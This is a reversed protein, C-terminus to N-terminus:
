LVTQLWSDVAARLLTYFKESGGLGTRGFTYNIELFVPDVEGAPFVLDFAALNIGSRRCFQRVKERGTEQLDQDSEADIAGGRAVNHLFGQATRWYSFVQDGIVVVRLDRELAAMYEQIVFGSGGQLEFQLLTQLKVGLEAENEILWVQRGEGGRAGKLVFPYAPLEPVRHDVDPHDGLLTEVKPFVLTHPHRVGYTWFALTDGIKGEWQFRLDYNPFVNQCMKTCLCYLEKAVTQPLIVAAADQITNFLDKDWVGRDWYFADGAIVPHLSLVNKPRAPQGSTKKINAKLM